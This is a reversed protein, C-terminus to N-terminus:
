RMGHASPLVGAMSATAANTRAELARRALKSARSMFLPRAARLASVEGSLTSLGVVRDYLVFIMLAAALLM